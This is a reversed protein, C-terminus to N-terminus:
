FLTFRPLLALLWENFVVYIIATAVVSIVGMKIWKRLGFIRMLAFLFFPTLLLFGFIVVMRIYAAVCLVLLVVHKLESKEFKKVDANTEKRLHYYSHGTLIVGLVLLVALIVKPFDGPGIGLEVERMRDAISYGVASFVILALGISLDVKPYM